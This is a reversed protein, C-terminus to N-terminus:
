GVANSAELAALRARRKVGVRLAAAAEVTLRLLGEYPLAAIDDLLADTAEISPISTGLVGMVLAEAMGHIRGERYDSHRSRGNESEERNLEYRIAAGVLRWTEVSSSM